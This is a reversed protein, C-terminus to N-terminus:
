YVARLYSNSNICSQAICLSIHGESHLNYYLFYEIELLISLLSARATLVYRKWQGKLVALVGEAKGYFVWALDVYRFLNGYGWLWTLIAYPYAKAWNMWMTFNATNDGDNALMIGQVLWQLESEPHKEMAKSCIM